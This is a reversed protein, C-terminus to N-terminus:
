LRQRQHQRELEQQQENMRFQHRETNLHSKIEDRFYFRGGRELIRTCLKNIDPHEGKRANIIVTVGRNIQRELREEQKKADDIKWHIFKREAESIQRTIYKFDAMWKKDTIPQGTYRKAQEKSWQGTAEKYIAMARRQLTDKEEREAKNAEAKSDGLIQAVTFSKLGTEKSVQEATKKGFSVIITNAGRQHESTALERMEEARREKREQEKQAQLYALEKADRTTYQNVTISKLVGGITKEVKEQKFRVAETRLYLTTSERVDDPTMGMCSIMAKNELERRTFTNKESALDKAVGRIMALKQHGTLTDKWEARLDAGNKEQGFNGRLKEVSHAAFHHKQEAEEKWYSLLREPEYEKKSQRTKKNAVMKEKATATGRDVEKEIQRARKSFHEILQKSVGKIEWGDKTRELEFGVKLVENALHAKYSAGYQKAFDENLFDLGNIAGTRGNKTIATNIVCCHSHLQMDPMTAADVQRATAHQFVGAIIGASERVRGGAGTRVIAIKEIEALTAEIAKQHASQIAQRTQDEAIAWCISVSKPASFTLDYGPMRDGKKGNFRGANTVWKEGGDPNYGAFLHKFAKPDVQRTEDTDLGVKAAGQGIWKGSPELATAQGVYYDHKALTLYYNINSMKAVTLM